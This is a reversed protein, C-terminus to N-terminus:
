DAMSFIYACNAVGVEYNVRGKGHLVLYIVAAAALCCVCRLMVLLRAGLFGCGVLAIAIGRWIGGNVHFM